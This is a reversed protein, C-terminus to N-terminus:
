TASYVENSQRHARFTQDAFTVMVKTKVTYIFFRRFVLILNYIHLYILTDCHEVGRRLMIYLIIVYNHYFVIDIVHLTFAQDADYNIRWCSIVSRHNKVKNWTILTYFRPSIAWPTYELHNSGGGATRCRPLASYPVPPPLYSFPFYSDRPLFAVRPLFM